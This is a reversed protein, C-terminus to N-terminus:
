PTFYARIKVTAENVVLFYVLSVTSAAQTLTGALVLDTGGAWTVADADAGKFIAQTWHDGEVLGYFDMLEQGGTAAFTYTNATTNPLDLVKIPPGFWLSAPVVGNGVAGGVTTSNALPSTVADGALVTKLGNASAGGIHNSLLGGSQSLIAGSQSQHANKFSFQPVYRTPVGSM